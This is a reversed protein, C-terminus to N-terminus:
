RSDHMKIIKELLFVERKLADIEANKLEIQHSLQQITQELQALQSKLDSININVNNGQEVGLNHDSYTSAEGSKLMIGRNNLLWDLSIDQAYDLFLLLNEESIGNNQQLIGRTVGTEKYFRYPTIEKSELYKLINRKIISNDQM